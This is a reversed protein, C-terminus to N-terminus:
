VQFEEVIFDLTEWFNRSIGEVVGSQAPKGEV